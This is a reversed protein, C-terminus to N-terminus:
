DKIFSVRGNSEIKNFSTKLKGKKIRYFIKTPLPQYILKCNLDEAIKKGDIIM